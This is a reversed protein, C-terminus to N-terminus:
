ACGLQKVTRPWVEVDSPTGVYAVSKDPALWLQKGDRQFGTAVADRPLDAHSRYADAFFATLDPQPARVYTEDGIYLFTMSEWDCHQAGRWSQVKTTPVLQGAADTWIQLGIADTFSAPLESYDCRAWSEVYWGPGGAGDTAPGDHLIVAQKIVGDIELVYLVRDAEQKAVQLGEQVGDFIRESRAIALAREPSDGTAGSNYVAADAFGGAGWTRCDVANGAAGARPHVAASRSLYLPGDYSRATTEGVTSTSDACATVVAAVLMLSLVPVARTM